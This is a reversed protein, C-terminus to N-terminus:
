GCTRGTQLGGHRQDHNGEQGKETRKQGCQQNARPAIGACPRRHDHCPRGQDAQESMSRLHKGASDHLFLQVPKGDHPEVRVEEEVPKAEQERREDEADAQQDDDIGPEVQM